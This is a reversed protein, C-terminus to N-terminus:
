EAASSVAGPTCIINVAKWFTSTERQAVKKWITVKVGPSHYLLFIFVDKHNCCLSIAQGGERFLRGQFGSSPTDLVHKPWIRAFLRVYIDTCQFLLASFFVYTLNTLKSLSPNLSPPLLCVLWCFLWKTLIGVATLGWIWGPKAVLLYTHSVPGNVLGRQVQWVLNDQLDRRARIHPKSTRTRWPWPGGRLGRM